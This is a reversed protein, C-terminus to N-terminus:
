YGLFGNKCNFSFEDDHESVAHVQVEWQHQSLSEPSNIFSNVESVKVTGVSSWTIFVTIGKQPLQILFLHAAYPPPNSHLDPPRCHIWDRFDQLTSCIQWNCEVSRRSYPLENMVFCPAVNQIYSFRCCIEHMTGSETLRLIFITWLLKSSWIITEFMKQDWNRLNSSKISKKTMESLFHVLTKSWFIWKSSTVRSVTIVM